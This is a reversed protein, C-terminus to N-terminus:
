DRRTGFGYCMVPPCFAATRLPTMLLDEPLTSRVDAKGRYDSMSRRSPCTRKTGIKNCFDGLLSARQAKAGFM